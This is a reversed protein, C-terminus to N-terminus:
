SNKQEKIYSEIENICSNLDNNEFRKYIGKEIIKQESFDEADALFRRCIEKYDNGNHEKERKIARMLREGDEVEIYIPVVQYENSKFYKRTQEYSELTGIMLMDEEGFQGDNITAYEWNGHVTQYTRLEVLFQKKPYEKYNQMEEYSIFNYDVGNEEGNRQPRTTYMVYTKLELDKKLTKYITDKGVSSKGILYFIKM